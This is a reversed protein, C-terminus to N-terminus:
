IKYLYYFFYFYVFLLLLSYCLLYWCLVVAHNCSKIMIM